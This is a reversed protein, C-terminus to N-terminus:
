TTTEWEKRSCQHTLPDVVLVWRQIVDTGYNWTGDDWKAPSADLSYTMMSRTVDAGRGDYIRRGSRPSDTVSYRM